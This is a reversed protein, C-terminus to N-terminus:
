KLDLVVKGGKLATSKGKWVFEGTLGDPLELEAHLAGGNVEYKMHILGLEHPYSAELHTLDGLHPAIRVTKFGPSAPEVGAVLALL